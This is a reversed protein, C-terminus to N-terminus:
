FMCFSTPIINTLGCISANKDSLKPLFITHEFCLKKLVMKHLKQIDTYCDSGYKM